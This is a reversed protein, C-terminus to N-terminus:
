ALPLLATVQTLLASVTPNASAQGVAQDVADNVADTLQQAGPSPTALPDFVTGLGVPLPNNYVAVGTGLMFDVVLCGALIPSESASWTATGLFDLTKPKATHVPSIFPSIWVPYGHPEDAATDVGIVATATNALANSNFKGTIHYLPGGVIAGLPGAAPVEPLLDSKTVNYGNDEHRTYRDPETSSSATNTACAGGDLRLSAYVDLVVGAQVTADSAIQVGGPTSTPDIQLGNLLSLSLRQSGNSVRVETALITALDVGQAAAGDALKNLLDHYYADNATGLSMLTRTTGDISAYAVFAKTELDFVGVLGTPDAATTPRDIFMLRPTCGASPDCTLATSPLCSSPDDVCAQPDSPLAFSSAGPLSYFQQSRGNGQLPPGGEFIPSTKTDVTFQYEAPDVNASVSGKGFVDKFTAQWPRYEFTTTIVEDGPTFTQGFGTSTAAAVPTGVACTGGTGFSSTTKVTNRNTTTITYVGAPKGSLDLTASMGHYANANPFDGRYNTNSPAPQPSLPKNTPSSFFSALSMDRVPSLMALVENGNPDKVSVTTRPSANTGAPNDGKCGTAAVSTNTQPAYNSTAATTRTYNMAARDVKVTMTNSRVVPGNPGPETSDVTTAAQAPLLSSGAAVLSLTVIAASFRHRRTLKLALPRRRRAHKSM